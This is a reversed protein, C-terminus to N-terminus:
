AATLERLHAPVIRPLVARQEATLALAPDAFIADMARKLQAVLMESVRVQREEIGIRAMEVGLQSLHKEWAGLLTLYPHVGSRQTVEMSPQGAGAGAQGPAGTKVVRQATGWTYEGPDMAMLQATLWCVIGEARAKADVLTATASKAIPLGFKEAAARAQAEQVSIKHTPTSGGHMKCRGFGVHDTGWGPQHKCASGDRNTGGCAHGANDGSKQM